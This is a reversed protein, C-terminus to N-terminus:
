QSYDIMLENPLDQNITYGDFAYNLNEDKDSDGADKSGSDYKIIYPSRFIRFKKREKKAPAKAKTAELEQVHADLFDLPIQSDSLDWQSETMKNLAGVDLSKTTSPTSFGFLISDVTVLFDEVNPINKKELEDDRGEAEYAMIEDKLAKLNSYDENELDDGRGAEKYASNVDLLKQEELIHQKNFEEDRSEEIDNLSGKAYDEHQMDEKYPSEHKKSGDEQSQQQNVIKEELKEMNIINLNLCVLKEKTQQMQFMVTKRRKLPQDPSELSALGVKILIERLPITHMGGLSYLQKAINFDQQWSSMLKEFTVKGWPFYIYRGDEVMQFHAVSITAEKHQSFIFTHVFFLIELNLVNESNDFNGIKVCTILKSRTIPGKNDPFYKPILASKSSSTYMYDDINDTCKLDTIISFELMTFKLIEGQVRVHLEDKNDQKPLYPRGSDIFKKKSAKSSSKKLKSTAKDRLKKMTIPDNRHKSRNEIFKPDQFCMKIPTYLPQAIGKHMVDDDDDCDDINDHEDKIRGKPASGPILAGYLYVACAHACPMEDLQFANCSCTREKLFVIFHKQKDYVTYVYETAPVVDLATTNESVVLAGENSANLVTELNNCVARRQVVCESSSAFSSRVVKELISVYLPLFNM